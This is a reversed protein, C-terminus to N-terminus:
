QLQEGEGNQTLSICTIPLLQHACLGKQGTSDKQPCHKGVPLLCVTSINNWLSHLKLFRGSSKHHQQPSVKLSSRLIIKCLILFM